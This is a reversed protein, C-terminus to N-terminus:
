RETKVRNRRNEAVELGQFAGELATQADDSPKPSYNHRASTRLMM